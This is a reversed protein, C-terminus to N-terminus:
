DCVSQFYSNGYDVVTELYSVVYEDGCWALRPSKAGRTPDGSTFDTTVQKAPGHAVLNADFRQVFVHSSGGPSVERTYALAIDSGNWVLDIDVGGTTAGLGLPAGLLTGNPAIRQLALEGSPGSLVYAAVYHTGTWVLGLARATPISPANSGLAPFAVPDPLLNAGTGDVRSFSVATNANSWLVGVETGSWALARPFAPEGRPLVAHANAM